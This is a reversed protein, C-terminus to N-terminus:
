RRVTRLRVVDDQDVAVAVRADVVRRALSRRLHDGEPVVRGVAQALLELPQRRGLAIPQDDDFPQIGNAAIHRRQALDDFHQRACVARIQQDVFRM